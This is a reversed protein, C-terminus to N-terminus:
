TTQLLTFSQRPQLLMNTTHAFLIYCITKNHEEHIGYLHKQRYLDTSTNNTQDSVIAHFVIPKSMAGYLDELFPNIKCNSIQM